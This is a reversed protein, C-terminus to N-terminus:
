TRLGHWVRQIYMNVVFVHEMEVAGCCGDYKRRGKAVEASVLQCRFPLWCGWVEDPGDSLVEDLRLLM